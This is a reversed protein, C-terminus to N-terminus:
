VPVGERSISKSLHEQTVPQKCKPCAVAGMCIEPEKSLNVLAKCSPCIAMADPMAEGAEITFGKAALLSAEESAASRASLHKLSEDSLNFIREVRAPTAGKQKDWEGDYPKTYKDEGDADYRWREGGPLKGKDNFEENSPNHFSVQGVPTDIYLVHRYKRAMSDDSAYGYNWGNVKAKEILKEQIAEKYDSESAPHYLTKEWKELFVGANQTVPSGDENFLKLKGDANLVPQNAVKEFDDEPEDADSDASSFRGLKDHYPNGSNAMLARHALSAALKGTAEFNLLDKFDIKAPEAVTKDGNEDLDDMLGLEVAEHRSVNDRYMGSNFAFPPFSNGLTDTYGGAGDGLAQWVDSSKLAVMRGTSHFVELADDDGVEECAAVWRGNPDDWGNWTQVVGKVVETGRPVEVEDLRTFEWAPYFDVTEQDFNDALMKGAGDAVESAIRLFFGMNMTEGISELGLSKLGIDLVGRSSAPNLGTTVTGGAAGVGQETKLAQEAIDKVMDCAQQLKMQSIKGAYRELSKEIADMTGKTLTSPLRNEKQLEEIVGPIDSTFTM